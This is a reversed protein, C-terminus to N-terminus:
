HGAAASVCFIPCEGQQWLSLFPDEEIKGSAEMVVLEVGHRRCFAGLQAVGEATNAFRRHGAPELWADLWSQSVDVGCIMQM